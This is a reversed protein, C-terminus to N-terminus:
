RNSLLEIEAKTFGSDLMKHILTERAIREEEEADEQSTPNTIYVSNVLMYSKGEIVKIPINRIDADGGCVGKGKGMKIAKSKSWSFGIPIPWGRGETMDTNAYVGYLIEFAM